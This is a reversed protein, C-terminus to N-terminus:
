PFYWVAHSQLTTVEICYFRYIYVFFLTYFSFVVFTLHTNTTRSQRATTMTTHLAKKRPQSTVHHQEATVVLRHTACTNRPRFVMRLHLVTLPKKMRSSYLSGNTKNIISKHKQAQQLDSISYFWADAKRASLNCCLTGVSDPFPQFINNQERLISFSFLKGPM